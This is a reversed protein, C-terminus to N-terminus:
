VVAVLRSFSALREHYRSVQPEAVDGSNVYDAQMRSRWATVSPDSDFESHIRM